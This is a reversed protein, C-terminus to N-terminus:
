INILSKYLSYNSLCTDEIKFPTESSFDLASKQLIATVLGTLKEKTDGTMLKSSSLGASIGVPYSVVYLGAALAETIVLAQGEFTSTHLLVKASQMEEITKEYSLSGTLIIRDKLNREMILNELSKRM